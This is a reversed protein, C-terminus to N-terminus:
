SNEGNMKAKHRRELEASYERSNSIHQRYSVAFRHTGNFEPSACFFRYGKSTDANLVADLADVTPCCIPGPPLGANRYTNYPSKVNLHRDLVRNLTYDFCFAVTPCAQLKEGAKLRNLYVGAILPLEPVYNSEGNVISALTAVQMPSLGKEDAKARREENWFRDYASKMRLFVENLSSTWWMEYTDPIFLSYVTKSDVGYRSLFKDDSLAELVEQESLLLQGGIRSAIERKLRLSGNLNVRVPSQWGNNLMRAVFVYSYSPKITYHGVTLYKAVKKDEFVRGLTKESKPGAARIMASIDALTAGPHVYVEVESTFGSMRNERLWGYGLLGAAIVAGLLLTGVLGSGRGKKKGKGGKKM